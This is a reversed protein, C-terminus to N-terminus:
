EKVRAESQNSSNEFTPLQGMTVSYFCVYASLSSPFPELRKRYRVGRIKNELFGQVIFEPFRQLKKITIIRNHFGYTM